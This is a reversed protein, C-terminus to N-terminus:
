KGFIRILVIIVLLLLVLWLWKKHQSIAAAVPPQTTGPTTGGTTPGDLIVPSQSAITKIGGTDVGPVDDGGRVIPVVPPTLVIITPDSPAQPTNGIIVPNGNDLPQPINNDNVPNGEFLPYHEDIFSGDGALDDYALLEVTKVQTGNGSTGVLTKM